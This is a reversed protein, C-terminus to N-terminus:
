KPRKRKNHEFHRIDDPCLFEVTVGNDLLANNWGLWKSDAAQLIAPREPHAVTVAVFKRDPPDFQALREDDPFSEFVRKSHHKLSVQACRAPNANNRLLWKVFVDGPRKGLLSSTKKQYENLIRFGDDIAICGSQVLAYLRAACSRVCTDGVDEHQGNAVLIVNTDVVVTL